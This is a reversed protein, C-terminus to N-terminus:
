EKGSFCYTCLKDCPLGIAEIIGELSQFELSDFHFKDCLAQRLNRGRDTNADSYEELHNFGEEGELEFVVRRAILEMENNSRSFNLFKCGHMIPPCASRM